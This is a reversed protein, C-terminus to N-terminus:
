ETPCGNEVVYQFCEPHKDKNRNAYIYTLKNWPCGIKRLYKLNSLSGSYVANAIVIENFPCKNKHLLKLTRISGEYGAIQFADSTLKCGKEILYKLCKYMNKDIAYNCIGNKNYQCGNEILYKLCNLNGYKAAAETVLTSWPCGKEHVYKLMELDGNRAINVMVTTDTPCGNEILYKLCDITGTYRSTESITYEDWPCGNEHAYKLCELNNHTAAKECTREDWPCGNEHAYKLTELSNQTSVIKKTVKNTWPVKCVEHLYKMCELNNRLAAEEMIDAHLLCGNEYAYQLCDLRNYRVAYLTVNTELPCGMSHVYELCERTSCQLTIEYTRYHTHLVPCNEYMYKMLEFEGAWAVLKIIKYPMWKMDEDDPEEFHYITGFVYLSPEISIIRKLRIYCDEIIAKLNPDNEDGTKYAIEEKIAQTWIVPFLWYNTLEEAEKLEEITYSTLLTNFGSNKVASIYDIITSPKFDSKAIINLVENTQVKSFQEQIYPDNQPYEQYLLSYKSLSETTTSM